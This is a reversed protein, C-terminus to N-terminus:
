SLELKTNCLILHRNEFIPLKNDNVLALKDLFSDIRNLFVDLGLILRRIVFCKIRFLRQSISDRLLLMLLLDFM